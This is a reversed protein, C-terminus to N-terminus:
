GTKLISSSDTGSGRYNGASMIEWQNGYHHLYAYCCCCKYLTSDNLQSIKKLAPHPQDQLVLNYCLTCADEM